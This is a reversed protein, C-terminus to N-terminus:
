IFNAHVKKTSKEPKLVTDVLYNMPHYRCSPPCKSLDFGNTEKVIRAMLVKPDDEISGVSVKHPSCCTLDGTEYMNLNFYGAVCRDYEFVNQDQQISEIQFPRYYVKFKSSEFESRIRGVVPELESNTLDNPDIRDKNAGGGWNFVPKVSLYDVGIESVVKACNHLDELNDQHTAYQIGITPLDNKRQEIIKALNQIIKDFHGNVRHMANHVETSGADLSIRAFTFYELVEDFFRDLLYGNTFMGQEIGMEGVRKVLEGFRPYATPEGSGVYTIAKLGNASAREFFTLFKDYDAHRVQEEQVAYVTCWRCSHNCYNGLSVTLNVPFQPQNLKIKEIKDYHYILKEFGLVDM